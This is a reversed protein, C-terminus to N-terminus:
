RRIYGTRRKKQEANQYTYGVFPPNGMIYNVKEPPVVNKWGLRLANGEVINPYSKLPLCDLTTSYIDGTERLMRIEAIWLSTRAVAVAFDNLEIGYFQDLTVKINQFLAKGASLIRHAENELTRLAIYTETLFNGSGCAPDLFVLGALKNLFERTKKELTGHVKISKIAEWESRLDDLFLPDIVKHINEVSTYHMGGQRRTDPNLTSEFVAGFITPSIGSWDLTSSANCLIDVAAQDFVPYIEKEDIDFLGGNVYPFKLADPNADPRRQDEPTNLIAFLERLASAVQGPRQFTKLYAHFQLHEGFVDADEAYLCFVLRVCLRNLSQLTEPSDPHPYCRRLADYLKGVVAGARFSLEEERHLVDETRELLVKRLAYREKEEELNALPLIYPDREPTDSTMDHIRIERFNCTIIWRIRKLYSLTDSYRKAQQFPTLMSGDSQRIKKDLDVTSSKQEILVHTEHLYGDMFGTEDTEDSTYREFKIVTEPYSVDFVDRLLATWFAQTEGKEYGDWRDVFERAARRQQVDDGM